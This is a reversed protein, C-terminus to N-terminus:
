NAGPQRTPITVSVLVLWPAARVLVMVADLLAGGYGKGQRAPVTWLEEVLWMKDVRDGLVRKVAAQLKQDVEKRRRKAEPDRMTRKRGKILARMLWEAIKTIGDERNRRGTTAKPPAAIINATGSKVTLAVRTRIWFVLYTSILLRETIKEIRSQEREQPIIIILKSPTSSMSGYEHYNRVYRIVPDQAFTAQFTRAARIVDAYTLQTVTVATQGRSSTTNTGGNEMNDLNKPYPLGTPTVPVM